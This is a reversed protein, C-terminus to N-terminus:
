EWGSELLLQKLRERARFLWTKVTNEPVGLTQAVESTSLGEVQRLVFVERLRPPLSDLARQALREGERAVAAEEPRPSNGGAASTAVSSDDFPLPRREKRSRRSRLLSRLHNLAISYLWTFFRKRTDFRALSRYVKLLIEQVAEEATERDGGLMRYALSYLLPTYRRVIEAFVGNAAIQTSLSRVRDMDAPKIALSRQIRRVQDRILSNVDEIYEQRAREAVLPNWTEALEKLRADASQKQGGLQVCPDTTKHHETEAM